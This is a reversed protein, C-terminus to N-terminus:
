SKAVKSKSKLKRVKKSKARHASQQQRNRWSDWGQLSLGKTPLAKAPKLIVGGVSVPNFPGVLYKGETLDFVVDHISEYAPDPARADEWDFITETFKKKMRLVEHGNSATEISYEAITCNLVGESWNVDYEDPFTYVLGDEVEKPDQWAELQIRVFRLEPSFINNNTEVEYYVYDCSPSLGSSGISSAFFGDWAILSNDPLDLNWTYVSFQPFRSPGNLQVAFALYRDAGPEEDKFDLIQFRTIANQDEYIHSHARRTKLDKRIDERTIKKILEGSKIEVSIFVEPFNNRIRVQHEKGYHIEDEMVTQAQLGRGPAGLILTLGMLCRLMLTKM